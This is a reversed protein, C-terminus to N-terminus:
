KKTVTGCNPCFKDKKELKTGCQKCKKPKAAFIVIIIIILAVVIIALWLVICLGLLTPCFGCLGCKKDTTATDDPKNQQNDNSNPKNQQNNDTNPKNQQNNGTNNGQENNDKNEEGEPPATPVVATGGDNISLVNSWESEGHTGTYRVRFRILTDAEIRPEESYATRIGASLAGTGWSNITDYPQWDGDDVSIQTELTDFAGTETLEYYIAANWVSEPTKLVYTLSGLESGEAPQHYTLDSIIPAEYETPEDPTIATSDKGFIAVDSWESYKSQKEGITEGDYTEWEMYYRCRIYLSHNEHDFYYNDFTYEGNPVARHIIADKMNSYKESDPECEYLDFLTETDMLDEGIWAIAHAQYPTPASYDTDWEPTYNWNETGDLSTDYQMVITFDYLGYKELFAERDQSEETSLDLVSMDTQRVIYLADNGETATRDAAEFIMYHPAAPKPFEFASIDPTNETAFVESPTACLLLLITFIFTLIKKM